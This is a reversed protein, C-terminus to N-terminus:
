TPPSTTSTPRPVLDYDGLLGFFIRGDYSMIAIGVALTSCSRCWRNFVKCSAGSCSSRSSRARARLDRHPQLLATADAAPGGPRPDDACRLGRAAHSPEAGVVPRVGQSRRGGRQRRWFRELLDVLVVPPARVDRGGPQRGCRARDDGRVLVPVM